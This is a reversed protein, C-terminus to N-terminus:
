AWMDAGSGGVSMMPGSGMMGGPPGVGGMQRDPGGIQASKNIMVNQLNVLQTTWRELSAYRRVEVAKHRVLELRQTVQDIRGQIKDDLILSVLIAEVSESPISLQRALYAIEIRTYPKIIELIWQTRLSRLVEDIYGRIFPDDMITSRNNRLIREAEHVDRGQYASVLNTMAMIEPDNKYPKTEQSDFPNIESDMLMHALVLYKLVQIRQPSGAEDYCKFSEFFDIQAQSWNRESMYMKGGCERIVGQIRPHPIASRVRLSKEYIERLKKNNKMEGYMQIEIAYVELQMTGKSSDVDAGDDTPACSAHLEKLIKNLRTYEKRDLWLKALKLNTKTSLRENKAEELASMTVGYFEQMKVTELGHEASVYDLIGNISKEAMNRTVGKKTYTLLTKYYSLADDYRELRFTLKTMQKLAKFGFEGQEGASAENDVIKQFSALALDPTDRQSKANYYDNEVDVIDEENDSGEYEFGYDEDDEDMMFDEDDSM